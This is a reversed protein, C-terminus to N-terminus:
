WRSERTEAPPEVTAGRETDRLMRELIDDARLASSRAAIYLNRLLGQPATDDYSALEDVTRGQRDQLFAFYNEREAYEDYEVSIRVLGPEFAVRFAQESATENWRIKDEQTKELLSTLLRIFKESAM